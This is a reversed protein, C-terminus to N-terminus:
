ALFRWPRYPMPGPDCAAERKLRGTRGAEATLMEATVGLGAALVAVLRVRGADCREGSHNHAEHREVFVECDALILKAGVTFDDEPVEAM